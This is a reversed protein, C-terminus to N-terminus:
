TRNGHLLDFTAVTDTDSQLETHIVDGFTVATIKPRSGKNQPQVSIPDSGGRQNKSNEKGSQQELPPPGLKRPSRLQQRSAISAALVKKNQNSEYPLPQTQKSSSNHSGTTRDTSPSVPIADNNGSNSTSTMTANTSQNTTAHDFAFHGATTTASKNPNQFRKRSHVPNNDSLNETVVTLPKPYAFKNNNNSHPFGGATGDNGSNFRFRHHHSSTSSNTPSRISLWSRRPSTPSAASKVASDSNRGLTTRLSSGNDDDDEMTTIPTSGLEHSHESAVVSGDEQLASINNENSNQEKKMSPSNMYTKFKRKCFQHAFMIMFVITITIGLIGVTPLGDSGSSNTDINMPTTTPPLTLTASFTPAITPAATATPQVVPADSTNSFPSISILDTSIMLPYTFTCLERILKTDEMYFKTGQDNYDDLCDDITRIDDDETASIVNESYCSTYQVFELQLIRPLDPFFFLTDTCQTGRELQLMMGSDSGNIGDAVGRCYLIVFSAYQVQSVGADQEGDSPTLEENCSEIFQIELTQESENTDDVVDEVNRRIGNRVLTSPTIVERVNSIREM